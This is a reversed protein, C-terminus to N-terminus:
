AIFTVLLSDYGTRMASIAASPPKRIPNSVATMEPASFVIWCSQDSLGKQCPNVTAELRIPVTTPDMIAPAGYLFM